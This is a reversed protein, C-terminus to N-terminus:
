ACRTRRLTANLCRWCRMRRLAEPVAVNKETYERLWAVLEGADDFQEFYTGPAAGGLWAAPKDLFEQYVDPMMDEIVDMNNKYKDGNKKVWQAVYRQFQQDFDICNM